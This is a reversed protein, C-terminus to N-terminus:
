KLRNAIKRELELLQRKKQLGKSYGGLSGDSNIVRHCPIIVTFPNKKLATGVARAAKPKGIKEAVWKYSRTQGLPIDLIARYVEKQLRSFQKM